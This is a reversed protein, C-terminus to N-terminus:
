FNFWLTVGSGGYYGPYYPRYYPRYYRPYYPQYYRPRYAYYPDGYYRNRWAHRRAWRRDARWYRGRWRHDAKVIDDRMQVSQPAYMPAANLPMASAIAFSAALTTAILGSLLTNM